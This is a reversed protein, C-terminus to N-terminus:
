FCSTAIDAIFEKKFKKQFSKALGAVIRQYDTESDAAVERLYEQLINLRQSQIEQIEFLIDLNEQEQNVIRNMRENIQQHYLHHLYNSYMLTTTNSITLIAIWSIKKRSLQKLKEKLSM